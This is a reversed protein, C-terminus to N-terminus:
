ASVERVSASSRPLAFVFEAGVGGAAPARCSLEGGHHRVIARALHLGLGVGPISGHRHAAGREFRAFIAEREAAAIGPGFDRVCLEFVPGVVRTRLEIAGGVAAYKRANDLVNLLAQLLAGRDADGWAPAGALQVRLALGDREAIPAFLLAAERAVEGLDCGRLDYAREGREMRGLDLVNEILMSLRASEGALLRYYEDTKGVPVRNEVLMEALLRIAALPTKLEHTVVTLFEARARVAAAERRLGGVAFLSSGALVLLLVLAALLAAMPRATWPVDIGALRPAIWWLGEVVTAVADQPKAFRVDGLDPVPPLNAVAHGPLRPAFSAAAVAAGRGEGPGPGPYWLLVREGMPRPGATAAGAIAAEIQVCRARAAAVARQRVRLERADLGLEELRRLLPGALDDPLAPLLDAAFLPLPVGRAADLLVASALAAAVPPSALRAPTVAALVARLEDGLQGARGAEGSRHAQWAAAALVPQRADGQPGRDGLLDDLIAASPEGDGAGFEARAAAQLKGAVLPDVPAAVAPALWGVAPPVELRGGAVAFCDAPDALALVAPQQLAACVAAAMALAGKQADLDQQARAQEGAHLLSLVVLVVLGAGSALALAALLIWPKNAAPAIRCLRALM